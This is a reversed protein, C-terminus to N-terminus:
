DLFQIASSHLVRIYPGYKPSAREVFGRVQLQKGVLQQLDQQDYNFNALDQYTISISFGQSGDKTLQLWARHTTYSINYIQGQVVHYASLYKRLDQMLATVSVVQFQDCQWIGQHSAMAYKEDLLLKDVQPVINDDIPLIYVLAFGNKIMWANVWLHQHDSIYVNALIRKYKDRMQGNVYQIDVYKNTLLKQLADLSQQAFCQQPESFLEPAQIGLLRIKEIKRDNTLVVITDGDIIRVVQLHKIVNVNIQAYVAIICSVYCVSLYYFLKVIVRM